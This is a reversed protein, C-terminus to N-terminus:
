FGGGTYGFGPEIQHRRPSRRGPKPSAKRAKMPKVEIKGIRVTVPPAPRQSASREPQIRHEKAAPRPPEGQIAQRAVPRAVPRSAPRSAPRVAPPAALGPSATGPSATEVPSTSNPSATRSSDQAPAASASTASTGDATRALPTRPPRATPTSGVQAGESRRQRGAQRAEDKAETQPTAAVSPAAQHTNTLAEVPRRADIALPSSPRSSAPEAPAASAWLARPEPVLREIQQREIVREVVPREVIRERLIQAPGTPSGPQDGVRAAPREPLSTRTMSPTARSGSGLNPGDGTLSAAEARSWPGPMPAGRRGPELIRVPAIISAVPMVTQPTLHALGMAELQTETSRTPALPRGLDRMPVPRVPAAVLPRDASPSGVRGALGTGALGAGTPEGSTALPGRLTRDLGRAVVPAKSRPPKPTQQNGSM